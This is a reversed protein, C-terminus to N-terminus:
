WEPEVRHGSDPEAFGAGPHRMAAGVGGGGGTAELTILGTPLHARGFKSSGPGTGYQLHLHPFSVSGLVNPHEEYSLIENGVSKGFTYHYAVTRV